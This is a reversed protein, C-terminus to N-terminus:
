GMPVTVWTWIMDTALFKQFEHEVFTGVAKGDTVGYLERKYKGSEQMCFDHASTALAELTLQEM